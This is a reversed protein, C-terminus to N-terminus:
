GNVMRPFVPIYIRKKNKVLGTKVEASINKKTTFYSFSVKHINM